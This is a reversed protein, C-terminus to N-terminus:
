KGEQVINGFAVWVMHASVAFTIFWLPATVVQLVFPLGAFFQAKIAVVMSAFGSMIFIMSWLLRGIFRIGPEYHKM